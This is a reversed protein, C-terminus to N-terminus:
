RVRVPCRAGPRARAPKPGEAQTRPEKGALGRPGARPRPRVPRPQGATRDGRWARVLRGCSRESQARLSGRDFSRVAGGGADDLDVLEADGLAQAYAAGFRAPIYPDRVGWLVLAPMRLRGLHEGARRLAEPPSSRYLRLIARQTGHDFHDLVSDQWEQRMPGPT